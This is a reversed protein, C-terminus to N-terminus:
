LLDQYVGVMQAAADDWTFEAARRQGRKALAVWKDDNTLLEEIGQLHREVDMPDYLLGADGVVEPVSFVDSSVVASGAAMAEVLPLGFGEHRTPFYFVSSEKYLTVLDDESVYGRVDVNDYEPEDPIEEAWGSGAIVFQRRTRRAVERVAHPNKRPAALSVHLIPISNPEEVDEVRYQPDVGHTVVSLKEQDVHDALNARVSESIAVVADCQFFLLRQLHHNVPYLRPHVTLSPDGSFYLDDTSVVVPTDSWLVRCLDPVSSGSLGARTLINYEFVHVLDAERWDDVAVVDHDFLSSQLSAMYIHESSNTETLSFFHVRTPETM